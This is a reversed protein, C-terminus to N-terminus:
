KSEKRQIETITHIVAGEYFELSGENHITFDFMGNGVKDLATESIHKPDRNGENVSRLEYKRHLRVAYIGKNKCAEIENLFRGDTIIFNENPLSKLTKDVWYNEGFKEKYHSGLFQLLKGDKEKPLDFQEQLLNSMAYITESFRKEKFNLNEFYKRAIELFLNKGSGYKGFVAIKVTMIQGGM